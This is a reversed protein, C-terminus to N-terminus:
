PLPLNEDISLDKKDIPLSEGTLAAENVRLNSAQLLRIDAPMRDGAELHVIDGPVLEIASIESERGNRIVKCFPPQFQNLSQVVKEAKREQFTSIAANALLIAGMAIGDFFGGSLFAFTTTGMLILTTFEKFQGFYTVFWPASKKGELRNKGHHSQLESIRAASLGSHEDVQFRSMLEEKSCSHWVPKDSAAAIEQFGHTHDLPHAEAESAKKSRTLFVLSLADGALNVVPASLAGLSALASGLLNWGKAIQFHKNVTRDMQKVYDFTELLRPIQDKTIVPIGAAAMYDNLPNRQSDAVFLANEGQQQMFALREIIEGPQLSLWSTDIGNKKLSVENVNTRNQLVGIRWGKDMFSSLQKGWENLSAEVKRAIFGLCPEPKHGAKAVFLVSFGKRELRKAEMEYTDCTIGHQKLYASNGVYIPIDNIKGTLGSEEEIVHFASRITRCTRKAHDWVEDKWPHGSSKMLSAAYCVAKESDEENSYSQFEDDSSEEQDFLLSTEEILMTNTRALQSLSGNSPVTFNREHSVVEAQQWAYHAPITVLRPNAALLVAIGQLPNRTIAWTAAGGILGWKGAKESYSQIDPSLRNEQGPGLALQSRKWNVFQLMSLGALVVLNERVLALALASTGLLLDSNWKKNQSFSEIGRRLFPYGTVVSILGSMYFPVPSGALASKGLFLRKAGLVALGGMAIALSIPVKEKPELTPMSSKPELPNLLEQEPLM